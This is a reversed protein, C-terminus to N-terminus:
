FEEPNYPVYLRPFSEPGYSSEIFQMSNQDYWLLIKSEWGTLRQKDVRAIADAEKLKTEEEPTPYRKEAELTEKIDNKAKNKWFMIVNHALNTIAGSGGVDMKGPITYEDGKRPHVVFHVHCKHTNVFEVLKETVAKQGKFDDDSVGLMTLSDLVFQTAGFRQRVYTFVELVRDIRVQGMMDFIWLKESLWDMAVRIHDVDPRYQCTMQRVMRQLTVPAPMEFSGICSREGTSIGHLIVQNLVLSKGHSSFGSWVTLESPRFMLNHSVKGWPTALGIPKENPPYFLRIVEDAFTAADRLEKPNLYKSNRLCTTFEEVTVGKMLCENIDKYPLEVLRCRHHGLREAIEMAGELGVPDMDCCIFFEDIYQLREYEATVWDQKGGGGGGNPISLSPAGYQYGSMADIEGETICLKRTNLNITQWGFLSPENSGSQTILKKGNPREVGLHKFNWCEGSTADRLYPFVINAPNTPCESFTNPHEVIKFAKITEDTLGRSRLYEQVPSQPKLAKISKPKEPRKYTKKVQPKPYFTTERIGLWAKAQKIAEGLTTANVKAWLDLLDGKDEPNSFDCWIGAKNGNLHICLSDGAEGFVSGVCWEQGARKGNPLLERCVRETDAALMAAIDKATENM